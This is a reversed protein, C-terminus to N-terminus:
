GLLGTHNILTDLTSDITTMLRLRRLAEAQFAAVDLGSAALRELEGFRRVRSAARM